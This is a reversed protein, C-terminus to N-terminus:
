AVSRSDRSKQRQSTFPLAQQEETKHKPVVRFGSSDVFPINPTKGNLLEEVTLIQLRPYKGFPTIYSGEKIAETRMPKTAEALTVMVGIQARERKVVHALDRIMPVSVHEGGKVSM